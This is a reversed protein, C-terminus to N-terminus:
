DNSHAQAEREGERLESWFRARREREAATDSNGNSNGDDEAAPWFSSLFRLLRKWM